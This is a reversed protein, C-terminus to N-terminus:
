ETDGIFLVIDLYEFGHGPNSNGGDDRRNIGPAYVALSKYPARFKAMITKTGAQECPEAKIEEFFGKFKNLYEITGPIEVEPIKEWKLIKTKAEIAIDIAYGQNYVYLLSFGLKKFQLIPDFDIMKIRIPYLMADLNNYVNKYIFMEQNGKLSTRSPIYEPILDDYSAPLKGKERKYLRIAYGARLLELRIAAEICYKIHANPNEIVITRMIPTLRENAYQTLYTSNLRSSDKTGIKKLSKNIFPFFTWGFYGLALNDYYSREQCWSFKYCNEPTIDILGEAYFCLRIINRQDENLWINNMIPYLGNQQDPLIPNQCVDNLFKLCARDLEISDTIFFNKSLTTEIRERTTNSINSCINNYSYRFADGINIADRYCQMADNFHGEYIDLEAQIILSGVAQIVPIIDIQEVPYTRSPFCDPIGWGGNRWDDLRQKSLRQFMAGDKCLSLIQSIPQRWPRVYEEAAQKNSPLIIKIVHNLLFNKQPMPLNMTEKLKRALLCYQELVPKKNVNQYAHNYIELLTDTSMRKENAMNYYLRVIALTSLILFGYIIIRLLIKKKM